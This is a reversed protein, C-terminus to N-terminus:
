KHRHNWLHSLPFLHCPSFTKAIMLKLRNHLVQKLCYCMWSLFFHRNIKLFIEEWKNMLIIGLLTESLIKHCISWHRIM